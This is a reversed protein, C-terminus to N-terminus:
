PEMLRMVEFIFNVVKGDELLFLESIETVGIDYKQRTLETKMCFLLVREETQIDCLCKCLRRERPIRCWRGTEIRLDHSSLRLKSYKVRKYEPILRNRYVSPVELSPYMVVLTCNYLAENPQQLFVFGNGGLFGPSM